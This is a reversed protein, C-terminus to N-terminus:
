FIMLLALALLAYCAIVAWFYRPANARTVSRGWAGSKAYVSGSLAAYVTYVAVLLGLGKFIM